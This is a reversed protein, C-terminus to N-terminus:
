PDFTGNKKYNGNLTEDSNMQQNDGTDEDRQPPSM